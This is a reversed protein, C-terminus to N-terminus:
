YPRAPPRIVHRQPDDLRRLQELSDSATRSSFLGTCAAKESEGSGMEAAGEPFAVWARGSGSASLRARDLAAEEPVPNIRWSM